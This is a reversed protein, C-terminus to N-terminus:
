PGRHEREWAENRERRRRNEEATGSAEGYEELPVPTLDPVLTTELYSIGLVEGPYRRENKAFVQQVKDYLEARTPVRADYFTLTLHKFSVHGDSDRYRVSVRVYTGYYSHFMYRFREEGHARANAVAERFRQQPSALTKVPRDSVDRQLLAHIRGSLVRPETTYLHGAERPPVGFKRAERYTERRRRNFAESHPM